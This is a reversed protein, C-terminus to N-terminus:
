NAGTRGYRIRVYFPVIGTFFSVHIANEFTVKIFTTISVFQDALHFRASV